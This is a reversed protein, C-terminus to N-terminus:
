MLDGLLDFVIERGDPSVDLSIWTGSTTSIPIQQKPGPPNNVDWKPKEDEALALLPLILLFTLLRRM